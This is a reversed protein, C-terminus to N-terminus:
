KIKLYWNLYSREIWTKTCLVGTCFSSINCKKAKPAQLRGALYTCDVSKPWYQKISILLFTQRSTIMEKMPSHIICTGVIILCPWKHTSKMIAQNAQVNVRYCYLNMYLHRTMQWEKSWKSQKRNLLWHIDNYKVILILRPWAMGNNIDTIKISQPTKINTKTITYFQRLVSVAPLFKAFSLLIVDQLTLLYKYGTENLTIYMYKLALLHFGSCIFQSILKASATSLSGNMTPANHCLQM